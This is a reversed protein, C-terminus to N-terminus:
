ATRKTSVKGRTSSRKESNGAGQEHAESSILKDTPGNMGSSAHERLRQAIQPLNEHRGMM